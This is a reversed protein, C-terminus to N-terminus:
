RYQDENDDKPQQAVNPTSKKLLASAQKDLFWLLNGALPTILQAPLRRTDQIGNVVEAVREAKGAGTVLFAIDHAHNIAPVTLTLRWTKLSEVWNAAVWSHKDQLAETNPFLSATHGDEGLGLFVLDFAPWEKSQFFDRLEKEYELAADHATLEGRIRHVNETPLPVHSLLADRVMQYNSDPHDPPVAREDGFFLHLKTWDVQTNLHPSALLQYVRKPTQGGSLAVSFRGRNSIADRAAKVFFEAVARAVDEATEFVLIKRSM